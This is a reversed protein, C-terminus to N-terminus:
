NVNLNNILITRTSPSRISSRPRVSSLFRHGSGRKGYRWCDLKLSFLFKKIHKARVPVVSFKYFLRITETEYGNCYYSSFIGM